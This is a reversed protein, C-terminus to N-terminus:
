ESKIPCASRMLVSHFSRTLGCGPAVCLALLNVLVFIVAAHTLDGPQLVSIDLQPILRYFGVMQIPQFLFGGDFVPLPYM